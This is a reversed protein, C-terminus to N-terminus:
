ISLWDWPYLAAPLIIHIFFELSVMPFRVRSRGVCHRLWSRWRSKLRLNTIWLRSSTTFTVNDSHLCHLHITLSTLAGSVESISVLHSLLNAKSGPRKLDQSLVENRRSYATPHAEPGTQVNRLVPLNRTGTQFWFRIGWADLRHGLSSLSQAIGARPEFLFLLSQQFLPKSIKMDFLVCVYKSKLGIFCNRSREGETRKVVYILLIQKVYLTNLRM